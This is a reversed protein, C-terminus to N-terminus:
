QGSYFLHHRDGPFLPPKSTARLNLNGLGLTRLPSTLGRCACCEGPREVDDGSSMSPCTVIDVHHKLQKSQWSHIIIDKTESMPTEHRRGDDGPSASLSTLKYISYFRLVKVNRLMREPVFWCFLCM